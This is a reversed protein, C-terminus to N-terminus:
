ARRTEALADRLSQDLSAAASVPDAADRIPRGVVVYDAGRAIAERATAVRKQDDRTPADGALPAGPAEPRVGPTILTAQPGLERRVASVEEPSCVFARVGQDFALRALRQAHATPQAVVGLDSLDSADLSTLVTVAV